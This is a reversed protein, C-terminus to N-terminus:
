NSCEMFYACIALDKPTIHVHDEVKWYVSLVSRFIGWQNIRKIPINLEKSFINVRGSLTVAVDKGDLDNMLFPILECGTEAIIGKPDITKWTDNGASLINEHHLDGHLLRQEQQDAKLSQYAAIANNYLPDPIINAFREYLKVLDNYWDEATQFPYDPIPNAMQMDKILAAIVKASATEDPLTNLPEGPEIYELLMIGKEQEADLLKCFGNGNFVKLTAIESLLGVGPIGLKLIAKSGNDFVVPTVFNYSLKKYPLLNLQWKNICYNILEDFGALWEEGAKGQVGIITNKFENPLPIM